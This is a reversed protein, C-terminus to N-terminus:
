LFCFWKLESFVWGPHHGLFMRFTGLYCKWLFDIDVRHVKLWDTDVWDILWVYWHIAWKPINTSGQISYTLM